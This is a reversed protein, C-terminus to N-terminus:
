LKALLRQCQLELMAAENQRRASSRCLIFQETTDGDPDVVLKVEVGLQVQHWAEEELLHQEFGRLQAKPTGVVYHAQRSRLFEINEESIM